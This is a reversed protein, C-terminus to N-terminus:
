PKARAIVLSCYFLVIVVPTWVYREGPSRSIANMVIGLASYVVVVWIGRRAIAPRTLWHTLGSRESIMLAFFAYILLSVVSGIRLNTPLVESAGGWAYHGLPAGLILSIQFVTLIALIWLYIRALLQPKM